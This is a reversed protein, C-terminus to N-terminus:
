IEKKFGTEIVAKSVTPLVGLVIVDNVRNTRNRSPLRCLDLTMSRSLRSTNVSGGFIWGTRQTPIPLSKQFIRVFFLDIVSSDAPANTRCYRSLVESSSFRANEFILFTFVTPARNHKVYHTKKKSFKVFFAQAQNLPLLTKPVREKFANMPYRFVCRQDGFLNWEGDDDGSRITEQEGLPEVSTM